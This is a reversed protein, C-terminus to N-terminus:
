PRSSDSCSTFPRADVTTGALPVPLVAEPVGEVERLPLLPPAEQPDAHEDHRRVRDAHSTM